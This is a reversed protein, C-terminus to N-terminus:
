SGWVWHKHISYCNYNFKLCYARALFPAACLLAATGLLVSLVRVAIEGFKVTLLVTVIMTAQVAHLAESM